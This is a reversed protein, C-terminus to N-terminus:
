HSAVASLFGILVAFFVWGLVALPALVYGTIRLWKLYPQASLAWCILWITWLALVIHGFFPEQQVANLSWPFFLVITLYGYYGFLVDLEQKSGLAAGTFSFTLVLYTILIISILSILAPNVLRWKM